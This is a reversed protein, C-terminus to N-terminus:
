GAGAAGGGAMPHPSPTAPASPPLASQLRNRETTLMVVLQRRRALLAGLAQAEEDPLPRQLPRVREAFLALIQADLTDTKALKGTARAFDRVQRPNVVVVPLRAAALAAVLSLELGGTAELVVLAPSLGQLRAIVEGIGAEDHVSRWAAGTPRVAVDLWDKAVDIGAFGPSSEM